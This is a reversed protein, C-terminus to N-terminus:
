ADNASTSITPMTEGVRVARWAASHEGRREAIRGGCQALAAAGDALKSCTDQVTTILDADEGDADIEALAAAIDRLAVRWARQADELSGHLRRLVFDRDGVPQSPRGMLADVSCGFVDAYAALEEAAVARENAEIKAVTTGYARFGHEALLEAMRTQSM